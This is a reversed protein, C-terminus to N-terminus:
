SRLELRGSGPGAAEGAAVSVYLAVLRDRFAEIAALAVSFAGSADAEVEERGDDVPRGIEHRIYFAATLERVSM